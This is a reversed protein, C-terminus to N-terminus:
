PTHISTHTKIRYQNKWFFFIHLVTIRLSIYDCFCGGLLVACVLVVYLVDDYTPRHIKKNKQFEVALCYGKHSREKAILVSYRLKCM